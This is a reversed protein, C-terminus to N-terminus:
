LRGNSGGLALLQENPIFRVRGDDFKVESVQEGARVVTGAVEKDWTLTVRDKEKM